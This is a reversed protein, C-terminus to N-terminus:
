CRFPGHDVARVVVGYGASASVAANPVYPSCGASIGRRSFATSHHMLKEM